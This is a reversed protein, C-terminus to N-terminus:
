LGLLQTIKAEYEEETLVGEDRLEAPRSLQDEADTRQRQTAVSM